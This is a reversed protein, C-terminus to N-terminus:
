GGHPVQRHGGAQDPDLLSDVGPIPAALALAEAIARLTGPQIRRGNLARSVTAEAVKAQRALDAGSLGRLEMQRKLQATNIAVKRPRRRSQTPHDDVVLTPQNM